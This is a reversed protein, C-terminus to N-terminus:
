GPQRIQSGWLLGVVREGNPRGPTINTWSPELQIISWEYPLNREIAFFIHLSTFGMLMYCDSMPNKKNAYNEMCSDAGKRSIMELDPMGGMIACADRHTLIRLWKGTVNLGVSPCTSLTELSCSLHSAVTSSLLRMGAFSLAFRLQRLVCIPLIILFCIRCVDQFPGLVKSRELCSLRTPGWLTEPAYFLDHLPFFSWIHLCDTARFILDCRIGYYDWATKVSQM